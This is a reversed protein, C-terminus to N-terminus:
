SFEDTWAHQGRYEIVNRLGQFIATVALSYKGALIAETAQRQGLRFFDFGFHERLAPDLWDSM